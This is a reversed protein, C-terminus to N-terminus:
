RGASRSAGHYMGPPAEEDINAKELAALRRELEHTEVAQRCTDLVTAVAVTEGPTIAGRGLAAVAASLAALTGQATSIDRPLQLAIPREKCPALLRELCLKLATPEGLKALDIASRVIAEGEAEM